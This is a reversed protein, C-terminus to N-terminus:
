PPDAPAALGRRGAGARNATHGKLNGWTLFEGPGGILESFGPRYGEFRALLAMFFLAPEARDPACRDILALAAGNSAYMGARSANWQQWLADDKAFTAGD